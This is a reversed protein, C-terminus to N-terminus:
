CSLAPSPSEENDTENLPWLNETKPFFLNMMHEIDSLDRVYWHRRTVSMVACLAGIVLGLVTTSFAVVLNGAMADINASSLGVLAPGMPILTGMLGLMPGIRIWLNMRSCSESARIELETILRDLEHENDQVPKGRRAFLAVLGPYRTGQFFLPRAQWLEIEYQALRKLFQQWCSVSRRRQWWQRLFGGLEFVTWVLLAFLCLIIPVMLASTLHYLIEILSKM